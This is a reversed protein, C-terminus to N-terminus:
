VTFVYRLYFLCLCHRRGSVYDRNKKTRRGNYAHSAKDQQGAYAETEVIKGSTLIGKFQTTLLKGLLKKAIDEVDTNQYFYHDLKM